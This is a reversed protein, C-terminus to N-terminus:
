YVYILYYICIVEILLCLYRKGDLAGLMSALISVKLGAHHKNLILMSLADSEVDEAVVLLPRNKQKSHFSVFLPILEAGM